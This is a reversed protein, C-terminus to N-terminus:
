AYSNMGLSNHSEQSYQSYSEKEMKGLLELFQALLASLSTEETSTTADTSATASTGSTSSDTAASSATTSDSQNGLQEMAAEYETKSIVGDGDTDVAAFIEEVLKSLESSTEPPPPPGKPRIGAEEMLGAMHKEWGQSAETQESKTIVGDKDLDFISMMEEATISLGTKQSMANAATECETKSIVGDGDQDMRKFMQPRMETISPFNFGGGGGASIGGISM